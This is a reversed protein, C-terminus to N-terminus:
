LFAKLAARMEACLARVRSADCAAGEGEVDACVRLADSFRPMTDFCLAGVRERQVSLDREIDACRAFLAQLEELLAALTCADAGQAAGRVAYIRRKLAFSDIHCERLIEGVRAYSLLAAQLKGRGCEFDSAGRCLRAFQETSVRERFLTRSVPLANAMAGASADCARVGSQVEGWVSALLAEARVADHVRADLLARLGTLFASPDRLYAETLAERSEEGERNQLIDFQM